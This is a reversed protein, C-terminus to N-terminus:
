RRRFASVSLSGLWCALAVAAVAVVWGKADGGAGVLAAAAIAALVAAIAAFLIGLAHRQVHALTTAPSIPGSRGLRRFHASVIGGSGPAYSLQYLM